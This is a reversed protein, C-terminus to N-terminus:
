DRQVGVANGIATTQRDEAQQRKAADARAQQLARQNAAAQPLERSIMKEVADGVVDPNVPKMKSFDPWLRM